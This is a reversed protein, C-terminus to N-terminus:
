MEQELYYETANPYKTCKCPSDYDLRYGNKTMIIPFNHDDVQCPNFESLCIDGPKQKYQLPKIKLISSILLNIMKLEM